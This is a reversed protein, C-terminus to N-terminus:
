REEKNRSKRYDSLKSTLPPRQINPMEDKTLLGRNRYVRLTSRIAEAELYLPAYMEEYVKNAEALLENYRTLMKLASARGSLEVEPSQCYPCCSVGDFSTSFTNKCTKCMWKM